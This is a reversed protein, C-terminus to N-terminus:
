VAPIGYAGKMLQSTFTNEKSKLKNDFPQLPDSTFLAPGIGGMFPLSLAHIFALSAISKPSKIFWRILYSVFVESTITVVSGTVISDTGNFPETLNYLINTFSEPNTTASPDM